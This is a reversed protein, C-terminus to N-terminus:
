NREPLLIKEGIISWDNDTIEQVRWYPPIVVMFAASLM